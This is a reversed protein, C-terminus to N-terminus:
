QLQHVIAPDTERGQVGLGSFHVHPAVTRKFLQVAALVRQWGHGGGHFPEAALKVVKGDNTNCTSEGINSKSVGGNSKVNMTKVGPIRKRDEPTPQSNPQVGRSVVM